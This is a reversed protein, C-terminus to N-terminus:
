EPQYAIVSRDIWSSQSVKFATEEKVKMEGTEEDITAGASPAILLSNPIVLEMTEERVNEIKTRAYAIPGSNRPGKDSIYPLTM